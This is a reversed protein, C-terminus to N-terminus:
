GNTPARGGETLETDTPGKAIVLIVEEFEYRIVKEIEDCLAPKM